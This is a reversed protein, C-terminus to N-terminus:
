KCNPLTFIKISGVKQTTFGIKFFITCIGLVLYHLLSNSCHNESATVCFLIKEKQKCFFFIVESWIKSAQKLSCRSLMGCSILGINFINQPTRNGQMSKLCAYHTETKEVAFFVSKQTDEVFQYASSDIWSKQWPISTLNRNLRDTVFSELLM